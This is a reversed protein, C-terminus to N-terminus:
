GLPFRHISRWRGHGSAPPPGQWLEVVDVRQRIPLLAGLGEEVAALVTPDAGQAVTVHAVVQEHVGGYIPHAPFAKGVESVLRDLPGPDDPRLFLLDTGFWGLTSLTLDFAGVGAAIRRLTGMDEATILDLPAFPYAITVHAPVGVRAAPDHRERYRAVLPDARPVLVLLATELAPPDSM